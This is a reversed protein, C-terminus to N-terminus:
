WESVGERESAPIAAVREGFITRTAEVGTKRRCAVVHGSLGAISSDIFLLLCARVGKAGKWVRHRNQKSSATNM